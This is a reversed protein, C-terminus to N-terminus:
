TRVSRARSFPHAFADGDLGLPGVSAQPVPLKPVGGRSINVQVITGTVFLHPLRNRRGM